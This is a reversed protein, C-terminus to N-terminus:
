GLGAMEAESPIGPPGRAAPCSARVPHDLGTMGGLRNPLSIWGSERVPIPLM